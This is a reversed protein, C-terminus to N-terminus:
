EQKSASSDTFFVNLRLKMEFLCGVASSLCTFHKTFFIPNSGLLYMLTLITNPPFPTEPQTRVWSRPSKSVQTRYVVTRCVLGSNQYSGLPGPGMSSPSPQVLVCSRGSDVQARRFHGPLVSAAVAQLLAEQFFPM